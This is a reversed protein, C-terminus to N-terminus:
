SKKFYVAMFMVVIILIGVVIFPLGALGTQMTEVISITEINSYSPATEEDGPLYARVEYDGIGPSPWVYVFKGNADTKVIALMSWGTDGKFRYQITVNVGKLSPELSGRITIDEGVLVIDAPLVEISISGTVKERRIVLSVEESEIREVSDTYFFAKFYYEIEEEVESPARWIYSYNGNEDTTVYAEMWSSVNQHRYMITM